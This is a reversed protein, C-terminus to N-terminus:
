LGLTQALEQVGGETHALVRLGAEPSLRLRSWAGADMLPVRETADGHLDLAHVMANAVHVIDTLRQAAPAQALAKASPAHHWRIALMVEAPFHWHTAILGGVVPHSAAAGLVAEEASHQSCDHAQRWAAVALSETPFHTALALAGIDHLLGSTFALADDEGCERALAQAALASGLTHRWFGRLDLGGTQAASLVQSVSATTLLAIVSRRGLVQIAGVVSTVKGRAGFFASNALGLVRATLAPDCALRDACDQVRSDPDRLLALADMAAEPLAPLDRVRERLQSLDLTPQLLETTM